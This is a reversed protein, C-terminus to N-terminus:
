KILENVFFVTLYMVAYIFEVYSTRMRGPHFMVFHSRMKFKGHPPRLGVMGVGTKSKENRHSNASVARKLKRQM